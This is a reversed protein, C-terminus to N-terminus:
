QGEAALEAEASKLLTRYRKNGPDLMVAKQLYLVKLKAQNAREAFAALKAAEVADAAAAPPPAEPVPTPISRAPRFGLNFYRYEPVGAVRYAAHVNRAALSWSGGRYVRSRGASPGMPDVAKGPHEASWDNTWEWVNGLMDYLGWNNPARAGVPHTENFSNGEHWAVADLEGYRAGTTGARAAYEWEAETPLRYGTCALGAFRDGSYCQQLGAAISLKNCYAVADHWSV